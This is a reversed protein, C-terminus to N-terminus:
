DGGLFWDENVTFGDHGIIFRPISRYAPKLAAGCVHLFDLDGGFWDAGAVTRGIYCATAPVSVDGTCALIGRKQGNVWLQKESGTYVLAINYWTAATPSWAAIATSPNTVGQLAATWSTGDYALNLGSTQDILTCAADADFKVVFEITLKQVTQVTPTFTAYDDSGDFSLADGIYGTVWTPGAISVTPGFFDQHHETTGSGATMAVYLISSSPPQYTRKGLDDQVRVDAVLRMEDMSGSYYTSDRKGFTVTWAPITLTDDPHTFSWVIEGVGIYVTGAYFQVHALQWSGTAIAPGTYVQDEVQACLNGGSIYVELVDTWQFLPGSTPNVWAAFYLFKRVPETSTLTASAVSSSGNFSLGYSFKGSGWTCNALTLDNGNDSADAAETGTNENCHWLGITWTDSTFATTPEVFSWHGNYASNRMAVPGNMKGIISALQEKTSVGRELRIHTGTGSVSRGERSARALDALLSPPLPGTSM